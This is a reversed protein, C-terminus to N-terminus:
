LYIFLYYFRLREPSIAHTPTRQVSVGFLMTHTEARGDKFPARGCLYFPFDRISTLSGGGWSESNNCSVNRPHLFNYTHFVKQGTFYISHLPIIKIIGM